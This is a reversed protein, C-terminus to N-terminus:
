FKENLKDIVADVHKEIREWISHLVVAILLLIWGVVLLAALLAIVFVALAALALVLVIGGVALLPIGILLKIIYTFAKM